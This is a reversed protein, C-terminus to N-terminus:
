HMANKERVGESTEEGERHESNEEHFEQQNGHERNSTLCLLVSALFILIHFVVEGYSHGARM